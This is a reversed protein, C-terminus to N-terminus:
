SRTGYKKEYDVLRAEDTLRRVESYPIGWKGKEKLEVAVKERLESLEEDYVSPTLKVVGASKTITIRDGAVLNLSKRIKAPLTIQGKSSITATYQM